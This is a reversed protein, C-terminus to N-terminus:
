KQNQNSFTLKIKANETLLRVMVPAEIYPVISKIVETTQYYSSTSETEVVVPTLIFTFDDETLEDERNLADILYNRLSNFNYSGTSTSFTSYFSTMNDTIQSKEFFKQRESKKILLLQSPINIGYTNSIKEVPISMTLSNIVSLMGKNEHYYKIIEKLPFKIEVDLGAPAVVLKQGEAFRKQLDPSMSYSINNNSIIEPTAQFFVGSTDLITDRGAANVTSYHYYIGLGTAGIRTVRGHGYSNRVYIGPFYEAFATPSLFVDPKTQYLDFLERGLDVPMDVYIANYSAQSSVSDGFSFNSAGYIKSGLPASSDYYDEPNFDSFIPANLQKKLRYVELGMPIVSDGVFAGKPYMMLLKVSDIDASSRLLTDIRNAPMFQTVFDATFRGYDEADITGILQTITRSQVRDNNVSQAELKFDEAIVVDSEVQVLDSGINQTTDECSAMFFAAAALFPYAIYSRLKM